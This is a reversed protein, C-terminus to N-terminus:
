WYDENELYWKVTEFVGDRLSVSPSWNLERQIKSCDIAYRRDHGPRDKVFEVLESFAEVGDPKRECLVDLAGCVEALIEYNTKENNGGINYTEGSKGKFAVELLADVHDGVFIWDRVQRGDGYLPLKKGAVANKIIKPILKEPFQRPGYNNSCNTIVTPLNYTNHWARVLHDSGAKTASYPSKPDYKSEETFRHPESISGFVEDTSVHHFLFRDSVRKGIQQWYNLSCQLLNYTGFINSSVFERPSEISNDVHTEAALNMVLNPEFETFAREVVAADCIDAQIFKYNKSAELEYHANKSSAYSIKDLNLIKHSTERILRKVLFSGIFGNGGTVLIKM